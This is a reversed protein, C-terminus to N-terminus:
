FSSTFKQKKEFYQIVEKELKTHKLPVNEQWFEANYPSAKLIKLDDQIYAPYVKESSLNNIEEYAILWAKESIRDTSLNKKSNLNLYLSEFLSFGNADEKFSVDINESRKWNRSTPFTYRYSVRVINDRNTKVYIEGEVQSKNSDKWNSKFEIVAIEGETGANIYNKLKFEYDKRLSYDTLPYSLFTRITNSHFFSASATNGNLYQQIDMYAYRSNVPQWKDVGFQGWSMNLFLEHLQSYRGNFSYVKQYFGKFYHRKTTDSLAKRLVANLISNVPNGSRAEPLQIVAVSLSYIQFDTNIITKVLRNYSVHSFILKVPLSKVNIQFEGDENSITSYKNSEEFITVGVIPQKSVRDILSGTIVNQAYGKSVYLTIIFILIFTTLKNSSIM